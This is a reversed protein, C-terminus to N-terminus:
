ETGFPRWSECECEAHHNHIGDILATQETIGVTLIIV